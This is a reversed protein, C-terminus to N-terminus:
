FGAVGSPYATADGESHGHKEVHQIADEMIQLGERLVAEDMNLAPYLRITDERDSIAWVGNELMKGRVARSTWWDKEDSGAFEPKGFSVGLLLGNGRAQRVISYKEWERMIGAAINGLRKAHAVIHDREFIELTRIAAACGAPTGAFTSGSQFDTNDGMIEDRASIGCLPAIG